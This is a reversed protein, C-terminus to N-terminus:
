LGDDAGSYAGAVRMERNLVRKTATLGAAQAPAAVLALLALVLLSVRTMPKVLRRFGSSGPFDRRPM